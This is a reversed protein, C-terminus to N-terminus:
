ETARCPGGGVCHPYARDTGRTNSGSGISIQFGQCHVALPASPDGVLPLAPKKRNRGDGHASRSAGTSKGRAGMVPYASIVDYLPTLSFRGGAEIFISFNKAHGDIAALLWFLIQAAFFTRRDSRAERSGLLLSMLDPIDPGGDAQYKQGPPTATAQCLDEQPLRIWWDRSLALRRDFREVVLVHQDEFQAM